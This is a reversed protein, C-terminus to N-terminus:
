AGSRFLDVLRSSNQDYVNLVDQWRVTEERQRNTAASLNLEEGTEMLRKGDIQLPPRIKKKYIKITTYRIM